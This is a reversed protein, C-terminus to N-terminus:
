KAVEISRPMVKKDFSADIPMGVEHSPEGDKSCAYFMFKDKGWSGDNQICYLHRDSKYYVRCNGPDEYKFTFLIM